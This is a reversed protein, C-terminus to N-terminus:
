AIDKVNKDIYRDLALTLASDMYISDSLEIMKMNENKKMCDKCYIELTDSDIYKSKDGGGCVVCESMSSMFGEEILFLVRFRNVLESTIGKKVISELAGFIKISKVEDPMYKNILILVREFDKPNCETFDSIVVGESELLIPMGSAKYYSIKSLSFTQLNGRNKSEIRRIGKAILAFKGSEKSYVTIIKDAEGYNSSKIIVVTDKHTRM